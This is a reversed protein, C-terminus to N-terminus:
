LFYRLGAQGAMSTSFFPVVEPTTLMPAVVNAAGITM